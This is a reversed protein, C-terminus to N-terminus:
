QQRGKNAGPKQNDRNQQGQQGPMNSQEQAPLNEEQRTSQPTQPQQASQDQGQGPSPPALNVVQGDELSDSPNIVVRDEPSIGALIELTTGYDRGISIARLQVKNDPGVVALRPGESRFLMANVPVTVKNVNSGVAFHVEGFSGPLLRGSQNPVDVETRLTRTTPDIADATREVEASFREGPFEQLTVATHGGLKIFPAYAQPVDTYVRLPDIRAIDFLERGGAAGTGANILAGPDVNRRTIVGSFPAYVKKFGELQELRRVNAETAALNAQAQRYGSTQQDAEQASVSDSKRLNEWRESSIKALELQAVIQERTARAQNLEQDVEPTDITALLEGESVRSGIDKYWRVLYGNTRAFIPSEAFAQLTGPLVLEVDPKEALPHVFAVTPVTLQETEKALAQEHSVRTILTVAGAVILVLLAVGVVMLARRPPAPPVEPPPELTQTQHKSRQQLAAIEDDREAQTQHHPPTEVSHGDSGTHTQRRERTQENEVKM